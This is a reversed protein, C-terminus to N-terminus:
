ASKRLRLHALGLGGLGLFVLLFYGPEPVVSSITLRVIMDNYDRDSGPLGLDEVGVWFDGPIVSAAVASRAFLAFYQEGSSTTNKSTETFYASSQIASVLQATTQSGSSLSPLFFLGFKTTPSFNSVASVGDSGAYIIGWNTNVNGATLQAPALTQDYWGLWNSSANGAVEGLMTASVSAPGNFSFDGPAAGSNSGLYVPNNLNPSNSFGSAGTVYCGINACVNTTDNSANNWYAASTGNTNVSSSITVGTITAPTTVAQWPGSPNIPEAFMVSTAAAVTFLFWKTM